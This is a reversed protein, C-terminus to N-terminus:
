LKEISLHTLKEGTVNMVNRENTFLNMLNTEQSYILLKLYIQM